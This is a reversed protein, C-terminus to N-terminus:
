PFRAFRPPPASTGVQRPEAYAEIQRGLWAGAIAAGGVSFILRSHTKLPREAKDFAAGIGYGIAACGGTLIATELKTSV